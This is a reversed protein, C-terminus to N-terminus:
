NQFRVRRTPRNGRVRAGVVRCDRRHRAHAPRRVLAGSSGGPSGCPSSAVSTSAEDTEGIDVGLRRLISRNKELRAQDQREAEEETLISIRGKSNVIESPVLWERYSRDERGEELLEFQALEDEELGDLMLHIDYHHRAHDNLDLPVDSLWVGALDTGAPWARPRDAFGEELIQRAAEKTTHHFFKV